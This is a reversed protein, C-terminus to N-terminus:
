QCIILPKVYELRLFALMYGSYKWLISSKMRNIGAKWCKVYWESIADGENM